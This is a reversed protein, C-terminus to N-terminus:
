IARGIIIIIFLIKHSLRCYDELGGGGLIKSTPKFNTWNQTIQKINTTNKSEWFIPTTQLTGFIM